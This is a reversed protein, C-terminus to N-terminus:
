TQYRFRLLSEHPASDESGDCLRSQVLGYTSRIHFKLRRLPPNFETETALLWAM